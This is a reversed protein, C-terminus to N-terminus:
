YKTLSFSIFCNHFKQRQAKILEFDKMHCLKRTINMNCTLLFPIHHLWGYDAAM